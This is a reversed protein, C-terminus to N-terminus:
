EPNIIYSKKEDTGVVKNRRYIEAITDAATIAEKRKTIGQNLYDMKRKYDFPSMQKNNFRNTIDNKREQALAIADQANEKKKQIDSATQEANPNSKFYDYIRQRNIRSDDGVSIIGKLLSRFARGKSSSTDLWKIINKDLDEISYEKQHPVFYTVGKTTKKKRYNYYVSWTNDSTKVFRYKDIAFSREKGHHGTEAEWSIATTNGAPVKFEDKDKEKKDGKTKEKKNDEDKLEKIVNEAKKKDEEKPKEEGDGLTEKTQKNLEKMNESSIFRQYETAEHGRKKRGFVEDWKYMLIRIIREIDKETEIAGNKIRNLIYLASKTEADLPLKGFRALLTIAMNRRDIAAMNQALSAVDSNSANKGLKERAKDIYNSDEGNATLKSIATKTRSFINFADRLKQPAFERAYEKVVEKLDGSKIAKGMRLYKGLGTKDLIFDKTGRVLRNKYHEFVAKRAQDAAKKVFQSETMNLVANTIGGADKIETASLIGKARQRMKRMVKVSKADLVKKAAKIKRAESMVRHTNKAAKISRFITAAQKVFDAIFRGVASVISLPDM